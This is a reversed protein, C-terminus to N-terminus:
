VKSKIFKNVLIAAVILAFLGFSDFIIFRLISHRLTQFGPPLQWLIVAEGILGVFQMAVSEYLSVKYKIPNYLALIYPINWMLFLVGYGKIVSQGVLGELEYRPAYMAPNIFFSIAAQLNLFVVSGILVRSLKYLYGTRAM